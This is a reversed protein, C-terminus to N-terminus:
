RRGRAAPRRPAPTSAAVPSAVFRQGSEYAAVVKRPVVMKWADLVLARMEPEDLADMRAHIWNFRMDSPRPLMFKHPESEVVIARWEKPFALGLTTEDRSFSLWVISGVRFKRRGYVWVEYSRPLGTAVALVQDRTVM